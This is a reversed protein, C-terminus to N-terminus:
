RREKGGAAEIRKKAEDRTLAPLTGTLVFTLGALQTSRQKKEATMDVGARKLKEVLERNVPRSFFDLISQSIRPGVHEVHAVEEAEAEMLAEMSSFHEALAEATREGVTPIGLDLLVGALGKLAPAEVRQFRKHPAREGIIGSDELTESPTAGLKVGPPTPPITWEIRGGCLPVAAEFILLARTCDGLARHTDDEPLKRVRALDVLRHSPLTPWARRAMQLACAYRNYISFGTEDPLM